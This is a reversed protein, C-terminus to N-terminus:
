PIASGNRAESAAHGPVTGLMARLSATRGTLRHHYFWANAMVKKVYDRTENFPISEAYIAGELPAADRWRRARGPGANYAATALVPDGLDALVRHYYYTGMAINVSPLDLLGVRYDPLSIQKAVWSATAPMLQMLGIAGVRSRITANFRSEQRIVAFVKAEDVNWQQASESLTELHTTPYRRTYDHLTVTRDATGISRDILGERSALEAAALYEGDTRARLGFVWERFAEQSLGLRYLAMARGVAPVSRIRAVDEEPVARPVWEPARTLGLDEAALLGYFHQERALPLLVARAAEAAGEERLARALWYQWAPDRAESPRMQNVAGRVLGWDGARLGARVMWHLQGDSYPGEAALRYWEAARPHHSRAARHAVEAWGYRTDEPGLVPTLERLRAASDEPSKRALRALAHLSLEHFARGPPTKPRPRALFRAPDDNALALDREHFRERNALLLNARKADALAGAALLQRIRAWAEPSGVLREAALAQFAPQCSAPAERGGVFRGRAEILAEPDGADIRAQLAYCAVEADDAVLSSHERRFVEWNAKAGLRKLWERRLQDALPGDQRADLFARIDAEAATDLSVLLHWYAPYAGLPHSATRERLKALTAANGREWAARAAIIDADSASTTGAIASGVFAFGICFLWSKSVVPSATWRWTPTGQNYIQAPM